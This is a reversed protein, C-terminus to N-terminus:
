LSVLHLFTLLSSDSLCDSETLSGNIDGSSTLGNPGGPASSTAVTNESSFAPDSFLSFNESPLAPLSADLLDELQLIGRGDETAPAIGSLGSDTNNDLRGLAEPGAFQRPLLSLAPFFSKGFSLVDSVPMDPGSHAGEPVSVDPVGGESLYSGDCPHEALLSMPLPLFLDEDGIVGGSPLPGSPKEEPLAPSLMEGHVEPPLASETATERLAPGFALRGFDTHFDKDPPLVAEWIDKGLLTVGDPLELYFGDRQTAEFFDLLILSSGDDLRILVNHEQFDFTATEPFFPLVYVHGPLVAVEAIEGTRPKPLRIKDIDQKDTMRAIQLTQQEGPTVQGM